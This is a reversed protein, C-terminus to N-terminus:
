DFVIRYPTQNPGKISAPNIREGTYTGVRAGNRRVEIITVEGTKVAHWEIPKGLADKLTVIMKQLPFREGVETDFAQDNFYARDGQVATVWM